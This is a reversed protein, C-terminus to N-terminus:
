AFLPNMTRVTYIARSSRLLGQGASLVDAMPGDDNFRLRPLDRPNSWTIISESSGAYSNSVSTASAAAAIVLAARPAFRRMM